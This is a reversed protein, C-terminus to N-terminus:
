LVSDMLIETVDHIEVQKCSRNDYCWQRAKRAAEREDRAAVEVSGTTTCNEFIFGKYAVNFPKLPKRSQKRVEKSSMKM